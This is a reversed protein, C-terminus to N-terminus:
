GAALACATSAMMSATSFFGPIAITMRAGSVSTASASALFGSIAAFTPRQTIMLPAGHQSPLTVGAASYLM